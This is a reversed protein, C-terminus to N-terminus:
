TTIALRPLLALAAFRLGRGVTGAVLFDRLPLRLVGCCVTVLYFPPVGGIASVLVTLLRVRRRRVLLARVRDLAARQRAPLAPVTTRSGLYIVTKAAMHGLTALMTVPLLLSPPLSASLAILLVEVPSVPLLSSVTAVLVVFACLILPANMAADRM